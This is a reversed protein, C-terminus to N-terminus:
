GRKLRSEYIDIWESVSMKQCLKGLLPYPIRDLKRLRICSKGMDLRGMDLAKYSQVFWEYLDPQAYVGLHYFGIFSKQSLLSIFPLPEKPNAHYGAPYLSHPVSFAPGGYSFCEEFGEPLNERVVAMLRRFPMQRDAPLAAIYSEVSDADIKM